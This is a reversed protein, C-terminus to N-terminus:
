VNFYGEGECIHERLKLITVLLIVYLSYESNKLIFILSLSVVSFILSYYKEILKHEVNLKEFYYLLFPIIVWISEIGSFAMWLSTILLLQKKRNKLHNLVIFVLFFIDTYVTSVVGSHVTLLVTFLLFIVEFLLSSREKLLSWPLYLLAVYPVIDLNIYRSVLVSCSGVGLWMLTESIGEFEKTIMFVLYVLATTVYFNQSLIMVIFIPILAIFRELAIDRYAVLLLLPMFLFYRLDIALLIDSFASKTYVEFLSLFMTEQSALIYYYVVTITAVLAVLFSKIYLQIKYRSM